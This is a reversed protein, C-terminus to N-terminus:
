NENKIDTMLFMEVLASPQDGRGNKAMCQHLYQIERSQWKCLFVSNAVCTRLSFHHHFCCFPNLEIKGSRVTLHMLSTIIKLQHMLESILFFFHPFFLQSPLLLSWNEIWQSPGQLNYNFYFAAYRSVSFLMVLAKPPSDLRKMQLLHSRKVPIYDVTM